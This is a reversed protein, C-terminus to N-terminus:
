TWRPLVSGGFNKMMKYLETSEDFYLVSYGQAAYYGVLGRKCDLYAIHGGVVKSASEILDEAFVLLASCDFDEHSYADARALQALLYGPFFDNTKLRPVSGLITRRDEDSIRSYDTDTVALTVFAVINLKGEHFSKEELALYTRSAGSYENQIAHTGLFFEVDRDRSCVFKKLATRISTKSVGSSLLERLPKLIIEVQSM